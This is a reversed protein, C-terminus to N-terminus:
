AEGEIVGYATQIFKTEGSLFSAISKCSFYRDLGTATQSTKALKGFLDRIDMGEHLMYYDLLDLAVDFSFGEAEMLALVKKQDHRDLYSLERLDEPELISPVPISFDLATVIATM